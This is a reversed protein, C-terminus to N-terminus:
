WTGLGVLADLSFERCEEFRGPVKRSLTQIHRRSPFKSRGSVGAGICTSKQKKRQLYLNPTITRPDPSHYSETRAIVPKSPGVNLDFSRSQAFRLLHNQQECLDLIDELSERQKGKSDTGVQSSTYVIRRNPPILIAASILGHDDYGPFNFWPIGSSSTGTPPAHKQSISFPIISRSIDRRHSVCYHIIFNLLSAKSTSSGTNDVESVNM